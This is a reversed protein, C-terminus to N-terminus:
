LIINCILIKTWLNSLYSYYIFTDLFNALSVMKGNAINEPKIIVGSLSNQLLFCGALANDRRVDAMPFDFLILMKM